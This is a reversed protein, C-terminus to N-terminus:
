PMCTWSELVVLRASLGIAPAILAITVWGLSSTVIHIPVTLPPTQRVFFEFAPIPSMGHSGRRSRPGLMDIPARVSSGVIGIPAPGAPATKTAPKLLMLLKLLFALGLDPRTRDVSPPSVQIWNPLTASSPSPTLAMAARPLTITTAAVPGSPPTHRLVSVPSVKTRIEASLAAAAPPIKPSGTPFANSRTPSGPLELRRNTAM